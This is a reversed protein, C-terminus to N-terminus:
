GVTFKKGQFSFNKVPGDKGAVEIGAARLTARVAKWDWNGKSLVKALNGLEGPVRYKKGTKDVQVLVRFKKPFRMQRGKFRFGYFNNEGDIDLKAGKKMLAVVVEAFSFNKFKKHLSLMERPIWVKKGRITVQVSEDAGGVPYLKGEFVISIIDGTPSLNVKSGHAKLLEILIKVAGPGNRSAHSVAAKIDKPITFTNNSINIVLAASPGNDGGSKMNVEYKIGNFMIVLKSGKRAFIVGCQELQQMINRIQPPDLSRVIEVLRELDTPVRYRKGDLKVFLRLEVHLDIKDAGKQITRLVGDPEPVFTYGALQLAQMFKLPPVKEKVLFDVMKQAEKPLLFKVGTLVVVTTPQVKIPFTQGSFSFAIVANEKNRVPVVGYRSYLISVIQSPMNRKELEGIIKPLDYPVIYVKNGLRFRLDLTVPFPITVKNVVIDLIVGTKKHVNLLVNARQLATLIAGVQLGVPSKFMSDLDSPIDYQKAGVTIRVNPVSKIDYPKNQYTTRLAAGGSVKNFRVGLIELIGQVKSFEAPKDKVFTLLIGIEKPLNFKKSSVVVEIDLPRRFNEKQGIVEFGTVRGTKDLSFKSGLQHLVTVLVTLEATHRSVYDAVKGSDKPLHFEKDKVTIIFDVEIPKPLPIVDVGITVNHVPKRLDTFKVGLNVLIEYITAFHNPFNLLLELSARVTDNIAKSVPPISVVKDVEPVRTRPRPPVPVSLPSRKPTTPKAKQKPTSKPKYPTRPTFKPPTSRRRTTAPKRSVPRPTVKKPRATTKLTGPRPRPTAKKTAKTTPRPTTLRPWKSVIELLIDGLEPYKKVVKEIRSKVNKPVFVWEVGIRVRVKDAGPKAKTLRYTIDALIEARPGSETSVTHNHVYIVRAACHAPCSERQALGTEGSAWLLLLTASPVVALLHM